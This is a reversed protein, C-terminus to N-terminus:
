ESRRVARLGTPSTRARAPVSPVELPSRERSGTLVQTACRGEVSQHSLRQWGADGEARAARKGGPRARDRARALRDDHHEDAEITADAAAEDLTVPAHGSDRRQVIEACNQGFRREDLEGGM